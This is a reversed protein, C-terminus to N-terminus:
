APKASSSTHRSGNADAARADSAPTRNLRLANTTVLLSSASMGLAAMWPALMGSAALPLAIINYCVAWVLNQRVVRMTRRAIDFADILTTLNENVM